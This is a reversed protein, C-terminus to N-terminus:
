VDTTELTKIKVFNNIDMTTDKLVYKLSDLYSIITELEDIRTLKGKIVPSDNFNQLIKARSDKSLGVESSTKVNIQKRLEEIEEKLRRLEIKAEVLRTLWLHKFAPLDRAKYYMLSNSVMEDDGSDNATTSRKFDLWEMVEKEYAKFQEYAM